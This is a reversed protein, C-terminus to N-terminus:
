YKITVNITVQIGANKTVEDFTCYAIMTDPGNNADGDFIGLEFLQPTGNPQGLLRSSNDLGAEIASLVCQVTIDRGQISVNLPDLRKQFFGGLADAPSAPDAMPQPAELDTRTPDPVKPTKTNGQVNFGGEGVKFWLIPLDVKTADNLEGAGLRALKERFVNTYVGTAAM